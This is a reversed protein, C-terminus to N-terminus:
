ALQGRLLQGLLFWALRQLRRRKNVFAVWAQYSISLSLIPVMAAM